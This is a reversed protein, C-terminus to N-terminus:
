RMTGGASMLAMFFAIYVYGVVTGSVVIIAPEVMMSLRKIKTRLESECYAAVEDLTTDLQGTQQAVEIMSTLLPMYADSGGLGQALGHGNLVAQRAAALREAQFRNGQLKTAVNLATLLQVGSRVMVGLSSALSATGSLRLISGILPIRLAARDILLRTPPYLLMAVFAAVVFGICTLTTAGHVHCWQAIDVLSQTMRPLKRGMAGLFKQLEPVVMLILYVAISIAATAVLVPYALAVRVENILTRRQALHRAAQELVPPLNGTQEGVNVLQVAIVPFARSAEMAGALSEGKSIRTRLRDLQIALSRSTAQQSVTQLATLLDLGSRLLMALQRLATEVHRPAPRNLMGVFQTFQDLNLWPDRTPGELERCSVIQLGVTRLQERLEAPGEALMEDRVIQGNSQRATYQYRQM